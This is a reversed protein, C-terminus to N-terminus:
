RSADLVRVAGSRRAYELVRADATVLPADLDRATAVLLRDFPDALAAAPIAGADIAIAGTVELIRLGGREVAERIWTELPRTLRVRGITHLAAVEFMSVTSVHLPQAADRGLLRQTRPGLRRVDGEAGWLWVHTDLLM